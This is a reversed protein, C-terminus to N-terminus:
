GGRGGPDGCGDGQCGSCAHRYVRRTGAYGSLHHQWQAYRRSLRRYAPHHGPKAPPSAPRASTTSCRPRATISTAWSPSWPHVPCPRPLRWPSSKGCSKRSRSRAPAVFVAKHGLEEVVLAATDRDISQNITAMTGIKMLERIVVNAKVALKQALDAVVIQEPIEVERVIKGVPKQFVHINPAKVVPRASQLRPKREEDGEDVLM